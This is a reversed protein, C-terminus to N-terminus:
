PKRIDTGSSAGDPPGTFTGTVSTGAEPSQGRFKQIRTWLMKLGRWIKPLFWILFLGFAGLWILFIVPKFVALMLGILVLIDEFISAAWNSFPEPSMNIIARTGTKTAHTGATVLGGLLLAAAPQWPEGVDAVSAYALMAGAPIRIFTHLADNLTDIGPIKDAFFELFYLVGATVLMEPSSLVQMDPPLNVIGFGNLAGLILVTAYLNLGSAWAAGFALSLLSLMDPSIDM